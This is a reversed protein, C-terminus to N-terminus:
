CKLVNIKIKRHKGVLVASGRQPNIDGASVFTHGFKKIARLSQLQLVKLCLMLLGSM